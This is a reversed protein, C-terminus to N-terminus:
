NNQWMWQISRLIRSISSVWKMHCRRGFRLHLSIELKIARLDTKNIRLKWLQIWIRLVLRNRIRRTIFWSYIGTSSGKSQGSTLDFEVSVRLQLVLDELHAIRADLSTGTPHMRKTSGRPKRNRSVSNCVLGAKVCASCPSDKDCKTKCRRCQECSLRPLEM